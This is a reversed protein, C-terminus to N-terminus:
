YTMYPSLQAQPIILEKVPKIAAVGKEAADWSCFSFRNEHINFIVQHFDDGRRLSLKPIDKEITVNNYVLCQDIADHELHSFSFIDFFSTDNCTVM